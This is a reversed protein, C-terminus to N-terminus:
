EKGGQEAKSAPDVGRLAVGDEAAKPNPTAAKYYAAEGHQSSDPEKRHEPALDMRDKCLTALAWLVWFIVSTGVATYLVTASIGACQKGLLIANFYFSGQAPRGAADTAGSFSPNAFLGTLAAGVMGGVGHLAFCDLCDDVGLLKKVVMPAPFCAWATFVGIFIAWMPAVLGAGPTIGVLGAVAGTAAGVATPRGSGWTQGMFVIEALNWALMGSAAGLQTNTFALGAQLPPPPPPAGTLSTNRDIAPFTSLFSSPPCVCM